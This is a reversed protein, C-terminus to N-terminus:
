SNMKKRIRSLSEPHIGLFGALKNVPIKAVYEKHLRFLEFYREEATKSLLDKERQAKQIYALETVIRGFQNAKLSVQYATNINDHTIVELECDTLTKMEADSPTQRLFSTYSTTIENPFYFDLFKETTNSEIKLEIVGQNIFYVNQEVNGYKTLVTNKKYFRKNVLFPIEEYSLANENLLSNYLDLFTM